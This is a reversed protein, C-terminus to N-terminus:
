TLNNLNNNSITIYRSIDMIVSTRTFATEYIDVKRWCFLFNVLFRVYSFTSTSPVINEVKCGLKLLDLNSYSIKPEIFAKQIRLQMPNRSFRSVNKIENSSNARKQIIVRKIPNLQFTSIVQKEKKLIEQEILSIYLQYRHHLNYYQYTKGYVIIFCANFIGGINALLDQIKMYTRIYAKSLQTTEIALRFINAENVKGSLESLTFGKQSIFSYTKIDERIWGNDSQFSDVTFGMTNKVYYDKNLSQDTTEMYYKIPELIDYSDVYSIIFNFEFIINDIYKNINEPCYM